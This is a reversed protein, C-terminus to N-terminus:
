WIWCNGCSSPGIGYPDERARIAKEVDELTKHKRRKTKKSTNDSSSSSSNHRDGVLDEIQVLSDDKNPLVPTHTHTHTPQCRTRSRAKPESKATAKPQAKKVERLSEKFESITVHRPKDPNRKRGRPQDSEAEPHFSTDAFSSRM